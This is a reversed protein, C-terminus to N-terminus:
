AEALTATIFALAVDRKASVPAASMNSPAAQEVPDSEPLLVPELGTAVSAGAGSEAEGSDAGGESEAGAVSTAVASGGAVSWVAASFLEGATAGSANCNVAGNTPPPSISRAAPNASLGVTNQNQAGVQDTQLRSAGETSSAAFLNPSEALKM